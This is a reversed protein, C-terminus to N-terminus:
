GVRDVAPEVEGVVNNEVDLVLVCIETVSVVTKRLVVVIEVLDVNVVSVVLFGGALEGVIVVM